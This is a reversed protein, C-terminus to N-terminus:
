ASSPHFGGPLPHDSDPTARAWIRVQNRGGDKAQYLAEDARRYLTQVNGDAGLGAIGISARIREESLAGRLPMAALGAQLGEACSSAALVNDQLLVAFEEGGIRGCVGAAPCRERLVQAVLRLAQDGAQHGHRDNIGKFHDIDLLVLSLPSHVRQARMAWREALEFLYRRNALGTLGDTQALQRLHKRSRLLLAAALLLGAVITAALWLGLQAVQRESELRALQAEQLALAQQLFRNDYATVREDLLQAQANFINGLLSQRDKEQARNAQWLAAVAQALQGEGEARVADVVFRTDRSVEVTPSTMFAQADALGRDRLGTSHLSIARMAHAMDVFYREATTDALALALDLETLAQDYRNALYHVQAQNFHAFFRFDSFDPHQEAMEFLRDVHKQADAERSLRMAQTVMTHLMNFEDQTKGAEVFLARAKDLFEYATDHLGVGTYVNATANYIMARRDAGMGESEAMKLAEDLLALAETFREPQHQFCFAVKVLAESLAEAVGLQRAIRLALERDPCYETYANTRVYIIYSRELLASVLVESPARHDFLHVARDYAAFADDIRQEDELALGLMVLRRGQDDVSWGRADGESAEILARREVGQLGELAAQLSALTEARLPAALVVALLSAVWLWAKSKMMRRM